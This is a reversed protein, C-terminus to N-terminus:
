FKNVKQEKKVIQPRGSTGRKEDVGSADGSVASPTYKRFMCGTLVAAYTRATKEITRRTLIVSKHVININISLITM